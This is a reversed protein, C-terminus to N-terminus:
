RIMSSRNQRLLKEVTSNLSQILKTQDSITNKLLDVENHLGNRVHSPSPMFPSIKLSVQWVEKIEKLEMEFPTYYSNDSSLLLCGSERLNNQVRKVVVSSESVIVYVYNNRIGNFWNDPEIFSCVVKDGSYLSPEMSDGAVDFCRHTSTKFQQGPLSFSPLDEFYVADHISSGYGAQAEVPVHVIREDGMEDTVVTIIAETVPKETSEDGIILPGTGLYLYNPNINYSAVSKHIIDSNVERKDRYIDSICQPHIGINLAFQRTSPIRHTAKLHEVCEIFRKTVEGQM